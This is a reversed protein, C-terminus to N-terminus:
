KDQFESQPILNADSPSLKAPARPTVLVWIEKKETTANTGFIPFFCGYRTGTTAVENFLGVIALTKGNEVSVEMQVERKNMGPLGQYSTGSPESAEISLEMAIENTMKRRPTVELKVGYDRWEVNSSTSTSVQYPISGGAVVSGKKGNNLVIRPRSRVKAQNSSVLGYVAKMIDSDVTWWVVATPDAKPAISIEGSASITGPKEFDLLGAGTSNGRNVELVLVEVEILLDPSMVLDIIGPYLELVKDYLARDSDSRLRGSIVVRDGATEYQLGEVDKLLKKVEGIIQQANGASALVTLDYEVTGAETVFRLVGVGPAIGKIIATNGIDRGTVIGMPYAASQLPGPLPIRRSEGIQLVIEESNALNFVVLLLGALLLARNARATM